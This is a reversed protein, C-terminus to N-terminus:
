VMTAIAIICLAMAIVPAVVTAVPTSRSRHPQLMVFGVAAGMLAGGLHGGISIGPITFTILLNLL